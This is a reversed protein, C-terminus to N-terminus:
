GVYAEKVIGNKLVFNVRKLDEDATVMFSNGNVEVLRTTAGAKIIKEKAKEYEM